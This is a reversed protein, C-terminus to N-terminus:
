GRWCFFRSICSNNNTSGSQTKHWNTIKKEWKEMRTRWKVGADRGRMWKAAASTHVDSFGLDLIQALPCVAGRWKERRVGDDEREMEGREKEGWLWWCCCDVLIKVSLQSPPHLSCSSLLLLLFFPCLSLFILSISTLTCSSSMLPALWSEPNTLAQKQGCYSLLIIVHELYWYEWSIVSERNEERFTLRVTSGLAYVWTQLDQLKIPQHLLKSLWPFGIFDRMALIYCYM